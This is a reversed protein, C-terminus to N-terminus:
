AAESRHGYERVCDPIWRTARPGFGGERAVERYFEDVGMVGGPGLSLRTQGPARLRHTVREYADKFRQTLEPAADLFEQASRPERGNEVTFARLIPALGPYSRIEELWARTVEADATATAPGHERKAAQMAWMRIRFPVGERRLEDAIAKRSAGEALRRRILESSEAVAREEAEVRAYGAATTRAGDLMRLAASRSLGRQRLQTIIETEPTDRQVAKLAWAEARHRRRAALARSERDSEQDRLTGFNPRHRGAGHKLLSM